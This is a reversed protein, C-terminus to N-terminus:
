LKPSGYKLHDMIAIQWGLLIIAYSVIWLHSTKTQLMWLSMHINCVLVLWKHFTLYAIIKNPQRITVPLMQSPNANEFCRRHTLWRKLHSVWHYLRDQYASILMEVRCISQHHTQFPRINISEQWPDTILFICFSQPWFIILFWHMWFRGASQDSPISYWTLFWDPFIYPLQSFKSIFCQCLRIMISKWELVWGSIM